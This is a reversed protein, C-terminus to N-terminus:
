FSENIDNHFTETPESLEAHYAVYFTPLWSTDMKEYAYCSLGDVTQLRNRDFDMYVM